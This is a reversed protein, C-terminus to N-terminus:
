KKLSFNRIEQLGLVYLQNKYCVLNRADKGVQLSVTQNGKIDYGVVTDGQLVYYAKKGKAAATATGSLPIKLKEVGKEDLVVLRSGEGSESPALLLLTEKGGIHYGFLQEKEYPYGTLTKQTTDYLFSGHDGVVAVKKRSQYELSLIITEGLDYTMKPQDSTLDFVYLTTKLSGNEGSLGAAVVEKGNPSVALATIRCNPSQWSYIEPSVTDYNKSYVTMQSAFGSAGSAIAYTGNDGIAACL